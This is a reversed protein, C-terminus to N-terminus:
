TSHINASICPTLHAKAILLYVNKWLLSVGFIVDAVRLAKQWLWRTTLTMKAFISQFDFACSVYYAQLLTVCSLFFSSFFVLDLDRNTLTCCKISNIPRNNPQTTYIQCTNQLIYVNHCVAAWEISHACNKTKTHEHGNANFLCSSFFFCM